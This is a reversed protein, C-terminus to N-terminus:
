NASDSGTSRTMKRPNVLLDPRNNLRTELHEKWAQKDRIELHDKLGLLVVEGKALGAMKMLQEPLLIRNNGDLELLRALGFFMEEFELVQDPDASSKDLAEAQRNFEEITYLCLNKRNGLTAYLFQAGEPNEDTPTKPILRRVDSPIPLRNKGDITYDFSGTFFARM